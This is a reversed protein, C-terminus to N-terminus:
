VGLLDFVRQHLPTPLSLKTFTAEASGVRYTIRAQTALAALLTEFSHVPLGDPTQKSKKKAKVSPSPEPRAVADRTARDAAVAEDQFLVPALARRLHWEVYYALMCLFFHARVRDEERHFVPRVRASRVVQEIVKEM